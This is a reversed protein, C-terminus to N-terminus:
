EQKCVKHTCTTDICTRHVHVYPILLRNADRSPPAMNKTTKKNHKNNPNSYVQLMKKGDVM